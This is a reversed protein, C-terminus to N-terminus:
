PKALNEKKERRKEFGNKDQKEFSLGNQFQVASTTQSFFFLPFLILLNWWIVYSPLLFNFSPNCM